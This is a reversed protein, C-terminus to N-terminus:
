PDFGKEWFIWPIHKGNPALSLFITYGLLHSNGLEQAAWLLSLLCLWASNLVCLGEFASKAMELRVDDM